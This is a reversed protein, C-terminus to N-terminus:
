QNESLVIMEIEELHDRMAKEAKMVHGNMVAEVIARHARLSADQRRLSQGGFIRVETLEDQMADIMSQFVSNGSARALMGHLRQDYEFSPRGESVAAEQEALATELLAIDHASANRAALAAIEPEIIKRVEFIDRLGDIGDKVSGLLSRPLPDPSPDLVYTGAGQRSELVGQEVLVKIAERVTNRAVSFMEALVREPPLKDGPVLQKEDLLSRLQLVIEEYVSQRSVPKINM